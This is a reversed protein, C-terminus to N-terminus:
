SIAVIDLVGYHATGFMDSTSESIILTNAHQLALAPDRGSFSVV